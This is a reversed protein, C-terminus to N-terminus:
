RPLHTPLCCSMMTTEGLALHFQIGDLIQTPTPSIVSFLDGELQRRDVFLLPAVKWWAFAQRDM